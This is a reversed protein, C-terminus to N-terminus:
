KGVNQSKFIIFTLDKQYQEVSVQPQSKKFINKEKNYFNNQKCLWQSEQWRWQIMSIMWHIKKNWINSKEIIFYENFISEMEKSLANIHGNMELTDTKIEILM